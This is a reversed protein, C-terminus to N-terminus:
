HCNFQPRSMYIILQMKQFRVRKVDPTNKEEGWRGRGWGRDEEGGDDRGNQEREM